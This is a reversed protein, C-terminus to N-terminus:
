RVVRLWFCRSVGAICPTVCATQGSRPRHPISSNDTWPEPNRWFLFAANSHLELQRLPNLIAWAWGAGMMLAVAGVLRRGRSWQQIVVQAQAFLLGVLVVAAPMYVTLLRFGPM